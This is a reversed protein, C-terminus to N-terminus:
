NESNVHCNEILQFFRVEKEAIKFLRSIYFHSSKTEAYITLFELNTKLALVIFNVRIKQLDSLHFISM